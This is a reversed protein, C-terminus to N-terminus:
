AFHRVSQACRTLSHVVACPSHHQQTPPETATLPPEQAHHCRQTALPPPPSCCTIAYAPPAPARPRLVLPPPAPQAHRRSPDAAHIACPAHLCLVPPTLSAHHCCSPGTACPALPPPQAPTSRRRRSSLDPPSPRFLSSLFPPPVLFICIHCTSGANKKVGTLGIGLNLIGTSQM